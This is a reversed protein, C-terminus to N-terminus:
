KWKDQLEEPSKVTFKIIGKERFSWTGNESKVFELLSPEKGRWDQSDQTEYYELYYVDHKYIKQDSKEHYFITQYADKKFQDFDLSEGVPYILDNRTSGCCGVITNYFKIRALIM